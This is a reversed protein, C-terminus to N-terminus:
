IKLYVFNKIFIKIYNLKYNKNIWYIRKLFLLIARLIIVFKSNNKNKIKNSLIEVDKFVKFLSSISLISKRNYQYKLTKERGEIFTTDKKKLSNFEHFIKFDNIKYKRNLIGSIIMLETDVEFFNSFKNTTNFWEKSIIQCLPWDKNMQNHDPYILYIRDNPLDKIKDTLIKDWYQNVIHMDDAFHIFFDSNSKKIMEKLRWPQDKYGERRELIVKTIKVKNLLYNPIKFNVSNYDDEDIGLLIEICDPNYTKNLVNNLTKTLEEVRNRSPILFCFKINKIQM